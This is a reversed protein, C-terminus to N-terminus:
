IGRIMKTLCQMLLKKAHFIRTKITGEPVQELEAIEAYGLDEYFVLRVARAHAASLKGICARVQEADSAAEMVAQASPTLDPPDFDEDLPVERSKKRFRDITKNRAISFIWTKVASRDEYRSASRWVDLFTDQVVDFAEMPDRLRSEVFVLLGAHHREYLRKMAGKDGGAVRKLLARDNEHDEVEIAGELRGRRVGFGRVTTNTAIIHKTL